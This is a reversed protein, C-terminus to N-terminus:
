GCLCIMISPEDWSILELARHKTNAHPPALTWSTLSILCCWSSLRLSRSTWGRSGQNWKEASRYPSHADILDLAIIVVILYRFLNRHLSSAVSISLRMRRPVWPSRPSKEKQSKNKTTSPNVARYHIFKRAKAVACSSQSFFAWLSSLRRCTATTERFGGRWHKLRENERSTNEVRNLM